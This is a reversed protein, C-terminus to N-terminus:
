GERGAPAACPETGMKAPVSLELLEFTDSTATENHPAGGPIMVSDGAELRIRGEHEFELELWGDLVYVFQVECLHRHWGTPRTMGATASTIQARMRGGTGDTVGLDRYKFFARRGEVFRPERARAVAVQMASATMTQNDM